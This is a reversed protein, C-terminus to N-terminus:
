RGIWTGRQARGGVVDPSIVTPAMKMGHPNYIRIVADVERIGTMGNEFLGSQVQYTVGGRSVTQVGAPLRCKGSGTIALLFEAALIGAAGETLANPAAGRFYTVAFSGVEDVDARMDQCVPWPVGLSVLRGGPLLRYLSPDVVVGDVRVSTVRGVPGPLVVESLAVCSCDDVGHGCVSTWFIGDGVVRGITLAPLAGFAPAEKYTGYWRPRAACPRVVTECVGIRYATLSALTYWALMEAREIQRAMKADARNEALEADSFRSSWDTTSPYCLSM